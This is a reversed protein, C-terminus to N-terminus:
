HTVLRNLIITNYSIKTCYGEHSEIAGDVKHTERFEVRGADEGGQQVFVFPAVKGDGGLEFLHLGFLKVQGIGIDQQGAEEGRFSYSLDCVQHRYQDIDVIAFFQQAPDSSDPSFYFVLQAAAGPEIIAAIPM